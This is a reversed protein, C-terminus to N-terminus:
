PDLQRAPVGAWKTNRPVHNIVVSGMGILAEEGITLDERVRAGSGIYAGEAVTVRGAVLVGAGFTVYNGIQDDHTLVVHPMVAVHRGVLVDATLVSGAHIVTGHGITSGRGIVASPHVLTAYRESDLDLGEVISRRSNLNSPSGTTVVLAFDSSSAFDVAGVVPVGSVETGLTTKDDELFGVLEFTDIDAVLSATERGFGGAGIILLPRKTNM